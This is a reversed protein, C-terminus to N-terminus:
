SWTKPPPAGIAGRTGVGSNESLWRLIKANKQLLYQILTSGLGLGLRVTYRFVVGLSDGIKQLWMQVTEEKPMAADACTVEYIFQSYPIIPIEFM